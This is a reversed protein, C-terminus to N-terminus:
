YTFFFNDVPKSKNYTWITMEQKSFHYIRESAHMEYKESKFRM